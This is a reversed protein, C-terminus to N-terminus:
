IRTLPLHFTFTAGEGVKSIVNIDGSMEFLIKKIIGLGLGTGHASDKTTFFSEFIKDLNKEPIGCGNDAVSIYIFGDEKKTKITIKKNPIDNLAYKSNSLLNMIIQQINSPNGMVFTREDEIFDCVIKIGEKNYLYSVLDISSRIIEHIDLMMIDNNNTRVYTRIHGLIKTITQAATKIYELAKFCDPRMGDKLKFEDSFIMTIYGNIITLPNNIEHAISSTLLGISALKESQLLKKHADELELYNEKLKLFQKVVTENHKVLRDYYTALLEQLLLNNTSAIKQLITLPLAYIIVDSLSKASASRFKENKFLSMEGFYNKEEIIALPVENKFIEISGKFIFFIFDPPDGEKFVLSNKSYSIKNVNQAILEVTPHDIHKFFPFTKLIQLIAKAKPM